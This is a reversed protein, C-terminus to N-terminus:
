HRMLQMFFTFALKGKISTFQAAIGRFQYLTFQKVHLPANVDAFLDHQYIQLYLFLEELHFQSM